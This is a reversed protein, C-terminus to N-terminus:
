IGHDAAQEMKHESECEENESRELKRRMRNKKIGHNGVGASM